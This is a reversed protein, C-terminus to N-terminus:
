KFCIQDKISATVMTVQQGIVERKVKFHSTIEWQMDMAENHM